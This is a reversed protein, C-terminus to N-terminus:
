CMKLVEDKLYYNVNGKFKVSKWNKRKALTFLQMTDIGLYSKLESSSIYIEPCIEKSEIIIDIQEIDSRKYYLTRKDRHITFDINKEKFYKRIKRSGIGLTKIAIKAAIFDPDTSLDSASFRTRKKTDSLSASAHSVEKPFMTIPNLKQTWFDQIM